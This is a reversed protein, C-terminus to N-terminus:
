NVFPDSYKPDKLLEYDTLTHLFSKIALKEAENMKIFKVSGNANKLKKDLDPSSKIGSAYHDLVEDITKFRGDHMYPATLMINRLSPIRFKGNGVGKDKSVLDLGINTAGRLDEGTGFNAGYEGGPSDDAAFNAGSHCTSCNKTFLDLGKKELETLEGKDFKSNASTISGVFQSLAESVRETTIDEDGFADKFLQKYYSKQSLKYPLVDIIELGMEIHNQVPQLSLDHLTRARSDWFLNNQLIPNIIAMSNRETLKTTFGLSVKQGDAFAKDQHHCSGCS